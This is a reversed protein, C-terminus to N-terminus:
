AALLAAGILGADDGLEAEAIALAERSTRSSYKSVGAIIASRLGPCHSLVGGGLLLRAPNLVTVQNAIALSLLSAARDYLERAVPDGALAATELLAPTLPTEPAERWLAALSTERSGADHAAIAERMQAILNHGGAYAELCGREGCGCGRGDPVVKVHGFEGAVGSAGTLLQGGAIIASGVGSGVFVVLLDDVGRGAGCRFEGWAAASLDNVVRVPRGLSATLLSGFPVDRWGLNPAVRVLGTDGALQGAVGVGCTTVSPSSALQCASAVAETVANVVSLPERDNLAMKASSLLRGEPDVVAARAFTGGLDIGLHAM